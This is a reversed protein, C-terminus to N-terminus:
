GGLVVYVFWPYAMVGALFYWRPIPTALMTEMELTLENRGYLRGIMDIKFFIDLTKFALMAIIPWNLLDYYLSIFLTLWYGPHMLLFLFISKQYYHWGNELAGRLTDAQQWAAEFLEAFVSLAIFFWVSLEM